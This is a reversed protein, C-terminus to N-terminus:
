ASAGKTGLAAREDESLLGAMWADDSGDEAGLIDGTDPKGLAKKDIPLLGDPLGAIVDEEIAGAELSALLADRSAPAVAGKSIKSDILAERRQRDITKAAEAGASAQAKVEEYAAAEVLVMGADALRKREAEQADATAQAVKAAAAADAAAQAENLADEKIKALAEPSGAKALDALEDLKAAVQEDTADEPLGLKERVNVTDGQEAREPEIATDPWTPAATGEAAALQVGEPMEATAWHRLDALGKIAPMKIGLSGIARFALRYAGTKTEANEVAEFSRNPYFTPLVKALWLPVGKLDAFITQQQADWRYNTYTGFSPEGTDLDHEHALKLRAPGIEPDTSARVADRLEEETFNREGGKWLRAPGVKAVPVNRITALAIQDPV